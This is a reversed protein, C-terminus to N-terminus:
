RRKIDTYCYFNYFLNFNPSIIIKLFHGLIDIESSSMPIINIDQYETKGTKKSVFKTYERKFHKLIFHEDYSKLNHLLCVIEHGDPCKRKKLTLNCNQCVTFLYKGSIHNHHRQRIRTADFPQNCTRCTTANEHSLKEADTLPDMLVDASMIKTLSKRKKSFRTSSSKWQMRGPTVIRNQRTSKTYRWETFVSVRLSTVIWSTSKALRRRLRRTLILCSTPRLTVFTTFTVHISSSVNQIPWNASIQSIQIQTHSKNPNTYWVIANTNKWFANQRLCRYVASVCTRRTKTCTVSDWFDAWTRSMCMITIKQNEPDDLLLLTVVHPRAHVEPQSATHCVVKSKRRSCHLARRYQPQTERIKIHGQSAISVQTGRRETYERIERLKASQTLSRQCSVPTSVSEMHFM